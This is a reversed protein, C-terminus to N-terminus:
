KSTIQIMIAMKERHINEAFINFIML